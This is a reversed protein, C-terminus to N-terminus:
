RQCASTRQQRAYSATLREATPIQFQRRQRLVVAPPAHISAYTAFQQTRIFAHWAPVVRLQCRTGVNPKGQWYHMARQVCKARENVM